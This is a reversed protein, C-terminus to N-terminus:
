YQIIPREFITAEGYKISNLPVKIIGLRNFTNYYKGPTHEFVEVESWLEELDTGVNDGLKLYLPNTIMATKPMWYNLNELVKHLSINIM